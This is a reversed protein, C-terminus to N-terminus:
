MDESGLERLNEGDRLARLVNLTGPSLTQAPPDRSFPKSIFTLEVERLQALSNCTAPNCRSVLFEALKEYSLRTVGFCIKICTLHPLLCCSGQAHDPQHILLDMMSDDIGIAAGDYLELKSVVPVLTLVDLLDEYPSRIPNRLLLHKLSCHSRTILSTLCQASNGSSDEFLSLNTLAPFTLAGFLDQVSTTQLVIDLCLLTNHHIPSFAEFTVSTPDFPPSITVSLNELNIAQSIARHIDQCTYNGGSALNCSTLQSWPLDPLLSSIRGRLEITRLAPAHRFANCPSLQHNYGPPGDLQLSRLMPLNLPISAVLMSLVPEVVNLEVDQWRHAQNKILAFLEIDSCEMSYGRIGYFPGFELKLPRGSSRELWARTMEAVEIARTDDDSHARWWIKFHSWLESTALTADRWHRCVQTPVISRGSPSMGQFHLFISGLVDIPLRRTPSLLNNHEAYHTQLVARNRRLRDLLNWMRAIESDLKSMDTAIQLARERVITREAATPAGYHGLVEAVPRPPTDLLAALQEAQCTCVRSGRGAQAQSIPESM